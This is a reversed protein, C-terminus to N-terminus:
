KVLFIYALAVAAAVGAVGLGIAMLNTSELGSSSMERFMAPPPVAAQEAAATQAPAESSQPKAQQAPQTESVAAQVAPAAPAEMAAKASLLAASFEDATQYREEPDKALAKLVVRDLAEPIGPHVASPAKATQSVHALMLEFQSASDFPTKGTIAEYLVVGMSYLDSRPDPTGTGKIQEPSIYKLNGVVAGVQTLQPSNTAKALAFGTLKVIGDPTVIISDPTLDRHVIRHSHACALAALAQRIYGIAEASGLPGGELRDKLTTGEILETTMVVQREVEMANYFGAINPHVLRAHVKVERLFRELEQQDGQLNGSLVTLVELRQALLNRVRYAVQTKSMKLVDLIEYGSYTKGIEFTM